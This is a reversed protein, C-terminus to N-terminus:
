WPVSSSERGAVTWATTTTTASARGKRAAGIPTADPDTTSVCLGTTRQYYNVDPHDPNHYCEDLINWGTPQHSTLGEAGPRKPWSWPDDEWPM